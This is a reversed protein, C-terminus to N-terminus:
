RLYKQAEERLDGILVQPYNEFLFAFMTKLVTDKKARLQEDYRSAEEIRKIDRKIADLLQGTAYSYHASKPYREIFDHYVVFGLPWEEWLESWREYVEPKLFEEIENNYNLHPHELLHAVYDEHAYLMEQLIHEKEDGTFQAALAIYELVRGVYLKPIFYGALTEYNVMWSLWINVPTGNKRAPDFRLKKAYEVAAEDLISYGSSQQVRTISVEGKETVLLLLEVSGGIGQQEAERPYDPSINELLTPAKLKAGACGLLVGFLIFLMKQASRM